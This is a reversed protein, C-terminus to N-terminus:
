AGAVVAAIDCHEVAALHNGASREGIDDIGLRDATAAAIGARRSREGTRERDGAAGGRGIRLRLVKRNRKAPGAEPAAVAAIDPDGVVASENREAVPRVGDESLRDAAAAARPAIRAAIGFYEEAFDRRSLFGSQRLLVGRDTNRDASGAPR